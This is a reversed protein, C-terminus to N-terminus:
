GQYCEHPSADDYFKTFAKDNKGKGATFCDLLVFKEKSSRAGIM